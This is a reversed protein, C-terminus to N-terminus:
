LYACVATIVADAFDNRFYINASTTMSTKHNLYYTTKAALLIHKSTGVAAVIGITGSAGASQVMCTFDPDSESNNATSLTGFVNASTQAATSQSQIAAKWKLLWAGIPVTISITGTNYWYNQTPTAQTRQTTDTVVVSWKAPDINFGFPAKCHSYAPSSIAANDLTYDTGGYVTILTAGGSYSGVATVIFYRVTTQTLRIRDGVGILGTMDAAVSIVFTPSDASSYSWTNLDDIWGSNNGKSVALWGAGTPLIIRVDGPHLVVLVTGADNKLTLLNATGTHAIMYPHNDNGEAPLTVDRDAGNPNLFQYAADSDLLTKAGSLSEVNAMSAFGATVALLDEGTVRKTQNEALGENPDRILFQINRLLIDLDGYSPDNYQPM